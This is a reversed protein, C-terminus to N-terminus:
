VPRLVTVWDSGKEHGDATIAVLRFHVQAGPAGLGYATNLAITAGLAFEAKVAEDESQPTAGLSARIQHKVV